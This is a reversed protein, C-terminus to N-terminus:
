KMFLYKQAVPLIIGCENLTQENHEANHPKVKPMEALAVKM